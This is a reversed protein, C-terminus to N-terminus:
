QEGGGPPLSAQVRRKAESLSLERGEDDIIEVSKNCCKLCRLKPNGRTSPFHSVAVVGVGEYTISLRTGCSPCLPNQKEDWGVGFMYTPRAELKEGLGRREKRLYRAYTVLGGIVVLEASALVLLMRPPVATLIRDRIQPIVSLLSLGLPPLLWGLLHKLPETLLVKKTEEKASM